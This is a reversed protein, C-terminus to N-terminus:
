LLSTVWHHGQRLTPRAVRAANTGVALYAFPINQLFSRATRDTVLMVPLNQLTINGKSTQKQSQNMAKASLLVIQQVSTLTSSQRRQSLFLRKPFGKHLQIEMFM